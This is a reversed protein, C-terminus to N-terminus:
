QGECCRGCEVTIRAGTGGSSACAALPASPSMARSCTSTASSAPSSAFEAGRLDRGADGGADGGKDMIAIRDAMTM